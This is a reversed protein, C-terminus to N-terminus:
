PEGLALRAFHAARAALYGAYRAMPRVGPERPETCYEITDGGRGAASAILGFPSGLGAGFPSSALRIERVEPPCTAAYREEQEACLDCLELEHLEECNCLVPDPRLRPANHRHLHCFPAEENELDRWRAEDGCILCRLGDRVAGVMPAPHLEYLMGYGTEPDASPHMPRPIM